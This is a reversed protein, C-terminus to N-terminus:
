NLIGVGVMFDWGADPSQGRSAPMNKLLKPLPTSLLAQVGDQNSGITMAVLQSNEDLLAVGAPSNGTMRMIGDDYISGMSARGALVGPEKGARTEYYLATLVSENNRIALARLSVFPFGPKPPHKVQLLSLGTAEDQALVQVEYRGYVTKVAVPVNDKLDNKPCRFAALIYGAPHIIVGSAVMQLPSSLVDTGSKGRGGRGLAVELKFEDEDQFLLHKPTIELLTLNGPVTAEVYQGKQKTLVTRMYPYHDGEYLVLDKTDKEGRLTLKSRGLPDVVVGRVGTRIEEIILNFDRKAAKRPTTFPSGTLTLDAKRFGPFHLNVEGPRAQGAPAAPAGNLSAFAVLSLIIFYRM